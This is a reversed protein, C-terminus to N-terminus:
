RMMLDLPHNKAMPGNGMSKLESYMLHIECRRGLIKRFKSNSATPTTGWILPHDEIVDIIDSLPAKVHTEKCIDYNTKAPPPCLRIRTALSFPEVM